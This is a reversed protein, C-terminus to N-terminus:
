EDAADSTYLLCTRPREAREAPELHVHARVAALTRVRAGLAGHAEVARGSQPAVLAGDVEALPREAAGDALAGEGHGSVQARVHASVGALLRESAGHATQAERM